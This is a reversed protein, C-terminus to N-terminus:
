PMVRLDRVFQTTFAQKWDVDKTLLDQSVMYDFTKKWREETM